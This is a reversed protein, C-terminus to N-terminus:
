GTRLVEQRMLVDEDSRKMLVLLLVLMVNAELIRGEARSESPSSAKPM